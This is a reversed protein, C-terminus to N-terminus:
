GSKVLKLPASPPAPNSVGAVKIEGDLIMRALLSAAEPALEATLSGPDGIDKGTKESSIEAQTMLLVYTEMERRIRGDFYGPRTKRKELEARVMYDIRTRQIMCQGALDRAPSFPIEGGWNEAIEEHM